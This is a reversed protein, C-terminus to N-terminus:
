VSDLLDDCDKSVIGPLLDKQFLFLIRRGIRDKDCGRLHNLSKIELSADERVRSLDNILLAKVDIDNTNTSVFYSLAVHLWSAKKTTFNGQNDL